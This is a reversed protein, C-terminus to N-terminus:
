SLFDINVFKTYILSYGGRLAIGTLNQSSSSRWKKSSICIKCKLYQRRRRRHTHRNNHTITQRKKTFTEFFDKVIPHHPTQGIIDTQRDTLDQWKSNPIGLSEFNPFHSGQCIRLIYKKWFKLIEFIPNKAFKKVKKRLFPATKKHVCTCDHFQPSIIRPHKIFHIKKPRKEFIEFNSKQRIKKHFDWSLRM